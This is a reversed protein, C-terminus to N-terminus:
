PAPITTGALASCAVWWQDPAAVDRLSDILGGDSQSLDILCLERGDGTLRTVSIPRCDDPMIGGNSALAQELSQQSECATLTTQAFAPGSLVALFAALSVFAPRPFPIM